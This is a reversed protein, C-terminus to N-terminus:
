VGLDVMSIVDVVSGDLNMKVEVVDIPLIKYCSVAVPLWNLSVDLQKHREKVGKHNVGM